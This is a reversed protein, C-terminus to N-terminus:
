PEATVIQFAIENLGKVPRGWVIALKASGNARLIEM